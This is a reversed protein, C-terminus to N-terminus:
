PVYQFQLNAVPASIGSGASPAVSKLLGGLLAAQQLNGADGRTDLSFFVIQNEVRTVQVSKVPTLESLYDLVKAYADVSAIGSVSVTVDNMGTANAALAFWKAYNDAAIQIGDAAVSALDGPSTTWSQAQPGVALQWRAAYQGPTTMYISGVLTADPKYRQSAPQIRSSNDAAIDPFGVAQQDQADMSPFILPVGRQSAASNMAQVIVSNNGASVISKSSGDELALWILTAPREQGWLPEHAARVAHNVVEPDFKASLLLGTPAIAAAGTRTLDYYTVPATGGNAPAQEYRYQQLFQSPNQILNALAPVGGATREGTIKVLVAALAEQLAVSRAATSQNPVPVSAEYLGTVVAAHNGASSFLLAVTLLGSCWVRATKM